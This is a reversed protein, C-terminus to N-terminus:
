WGAALPDEIRLRLKHGGYTGLREDAEWRRIQSAVRRQRLARYLPHPLITRGFRKVLGRAEASKLPTM